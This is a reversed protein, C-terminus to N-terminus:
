VISFSVPPSTRLLGETLPFIEAMKARAHRLEDVLGESRLASILKVHTEYLFNNQQLQVYFDISFLLIRSLLWSFSYYLKFCSPVQIRLELILDTLDEEEAEEEDDDDEDDDEDDNEDEQENLEAGDVERDEEEKM